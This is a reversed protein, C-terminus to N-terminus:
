KDELKKISKFNLRNLPIGSQDSVIAMITAATPEDVDILDLKGVSNGEALPTGKAAPTESKGTEAVTEKADQKKTLGAMVKSFILIVVAIIALMSLVVFFGTLATPLQELVVDSRSPIEMIRKKFENGISCIDTIFEQFFRM